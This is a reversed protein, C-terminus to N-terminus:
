IDRRHHEADGPIGNAEEPVANAKAPIRMHFSRIRIRQFRPNQRLVFVSSDRSGSISFRLSSMRFSRRICNPHLLSFSSQWVSCSSSRSSFRSASCVALVSGLVVRVRLGCLAIRGASPQAADAGPDGGAHSASGCVLGSWRGLTRRCAAGTQLLRIPVEPTQGPGTCLSGCQGGFSLQPSQAWCRAPEPASEARSQPRAPGPM